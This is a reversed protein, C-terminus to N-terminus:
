SELPIVYAAYNFKVILSQLKDSKEKFDSFGQYLKDLFGVKRQTHIIAIIKNTYRLLTM